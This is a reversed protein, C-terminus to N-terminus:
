VTQKKIMENYPVFVDFGKGLFYKQTEKEDRKSTALVFDGGWAGLSKVEGWYDSFHLDKVRKMNLSEAILQEHRLLLEDFETLTQAKLFSKSIESLEFVLEQKQDKMLSRYYAIGDQSCQKKGLYVFYLSNKFVPDFAVEQCHVEDQHKEYFIPGKSEACAVDYGSGGITKFLLEFPNIGAWKAINHILTSSSGLGWLRPFELYTEVLVYEKGKLFNAGLRRATHLIKQLLLSKQSIYRDLCEFTEIDFRAEFWLDGNNDYSKWHLVKHESPSYTVKLAQGANTPLALAVAGDLVYYEGSLLLKGSGYFTQM